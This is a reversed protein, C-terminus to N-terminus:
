VKGQAKVKLTVQEGVIFAQHLTRWAKDTLADLVETGVSWLVFCAGQVLSACKM